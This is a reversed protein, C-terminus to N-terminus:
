SLDRVGRLLTAPNIPDNPLLKALESEFVKWGGDTGKLVVGCHSYNSRTVGEIAEVLDVGRPLAQFLVDGAQPRYTESGKESAKGKKQALSFGVTPSLCLGLVAVATIFRHFMPNM